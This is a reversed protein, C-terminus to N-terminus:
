KYLWVKLLSFLQELNVPKSIYDSAGADICKQRDNKMAKATLAIIPLAEFKPISRLRRIAEYGDMEPMMIDMLVVDVNPDDNLSQLAERGNEAFSVIMGEAELSTTLAFINRMDDDVVLVRKGELMEESVRNHELAHIPPNVLESEKKSAQSEEHNSLSVAVEEYAELFEETPENKEPLYFTFISGKGVMSEVTIYGGLLDALERCISLGLGTGGFKRSTTGDEQQFAEFILEQKDKSIGIGSDIVRFRVYPEDGQNLSTVETTVELEVSGKETFKLANSLLNKIIQYVKQEDTYLVGPVAESIDIKFTLNKQEALPSFQKETFTLVDRIDTEGIHVEAKGSEIKSLDLIDNILQLLDKGASHITQAYETQKETLNGEKNEVLIQALILLSNLPTRLEHSMNALFESKYQSSLLVQRTKEELATKAEQLDTTKQESHKYQAELEENMTRLEEQQLQLEESQSQLEENLTQAEELLQRVQMQRQIRHITIGLQEVSQELLKIHLPSFATISAIEIVGIVEGEQQVPVIIISAPSTQGLGSAIKIYDEPVDKLFKIKKDKACQGVLGEGIEVMNSLPELDGVKNEAFASLKKLYEKEKNEEKIYLVGYGGEVMPVITQIYEQGLNHLDLLGQSLTSLEAVKTKLWNQEEMEEKYKRENAEHKELAAAMENYANSIEGIEDHSIVPIRPLNESGYQISSMVNKVKKMQKSLTNITWYSLGVGIILVIIIALISIAIANKYTEDTELLTQDMIDEQISILSETTNMLYIHQNQLGSISAAVGESEGSIMRSIVIDMTTEYQHFQKKLTTLEKKAEEVKIISTLIALNENILKNSERISQIYSIDNNENLDITFSNFFRDVKRMEMRAQNILKIKEYRDDILHNIDQNQNNLMSVIIALLITMLMIILGFGVYLRTNFRM